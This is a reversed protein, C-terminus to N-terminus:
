FVVNVFSHAGFKGFRLKNKVYVSVVKHRPPSKRPLGLYQKSQNFKKTMGTIKVNRSNLSIKPQQYTKPEQVNRELIIMAVSSPVTGEMFKVIFALM